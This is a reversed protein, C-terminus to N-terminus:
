KKMQLGLGAELKSLSQLASESVQIANQYDELKWYLFAVVRLFLPSETM